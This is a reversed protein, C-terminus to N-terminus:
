RAEAVCRGGKCALQFAPASSPCKPCKAAGPNPCVARAVADAHNRNYVVVAAVTPAGCAACCGNARYTCDAAVNCAFREPVADGDASPLSGGSGGSGTAPPM